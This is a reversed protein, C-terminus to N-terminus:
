GGRRAGSRGERMQIPLMRRKIRRILLRIDGNRTWVDNGSM